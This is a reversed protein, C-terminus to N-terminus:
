SVRMILDVELEQPVKAAVRVNQVGVQVRLPLAVPLLLEIQPEIGRLVEVGVRNEPIRGM